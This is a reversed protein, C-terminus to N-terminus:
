QLFPMSSSPPLPIVAPSIMDSTTAPPFYPLSPDSAPCFAPVVTQTNYWTYPNGERFCCRSSYNQYARFPGSVWHTCARGSRLFSFGELDYDPPLVRNELPRTQQQSMFCNPLKPCDLAVSRCKQDARFCLAFHSAHIARSRPQALHGTISHERSTASQGCPRPHYATSSTRRVARPTHVHTSTSM